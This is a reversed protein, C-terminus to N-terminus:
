ATGNEGKEGAGKKGGYKERWGKYHGNGVRADAPAPEDEPLVWAHGIQKANPIRGAQIKRWTNSRDLGYKNCYETLSIYEM